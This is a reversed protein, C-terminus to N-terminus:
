SMADVNNRREIFTMHGSTFSLFNLLILGTDSYMRPSTKRGGFLRKVVAAAIM